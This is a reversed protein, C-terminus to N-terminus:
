WGDGGIVMCWGGVDDVVWSGGDNFGFGLNEFSKKPMHPWGEDVM